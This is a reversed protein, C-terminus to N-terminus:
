KNFPLCLWNVCGTFSINATTFTRLHGYWREVVGGDWQHHPVFSIHWVYRYHIVVSWCHVGRLHTSASPRPSRDRTRSNFWHKEILKKRTKFLCFNLHQQLFFATAAVCCENLLLVPSSLAASALNERARLSCM